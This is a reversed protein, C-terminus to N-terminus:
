FRPRSKSPTGQPAGKSIEAAAARNEGATFNEAPRVQWPGVARKRDWVRRVPRTLVFWAWSLTRGRIAAVWRAWSMCAGPGFFLIYSWQCCKETPMRMIFFWALKTNDPKKQVNKQLLRWSWPPSVKLIKSFEKLKRSNASNIRFTSLNTEM